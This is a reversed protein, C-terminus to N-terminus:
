NRSILKTRKDSAVPLTIANDNIDITDIGIQNIVDSKQKRLM